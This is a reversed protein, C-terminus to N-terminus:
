LRSTLERFIVARKHKWFLKRKELVNRFKDTQLDNITQNSWWRQSNCIQINFGNEYTFSVCTNKKYGQHSKTFPRLVSILSRIFSIQKNLLCIRDFIFCQHCCNVEFLNGKYSSRLDNSAWNLDLTWITWFSIKKKNWETYSQFREFHM